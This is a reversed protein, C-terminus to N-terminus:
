QFPEEVERIGSMFLPLFHHYDLRAPEIKWSLKNRAGQQIIIPLDSREYSRRLETNPPNPRRTTSGASPPGASAARSARKARREEAARSVGISSTGGLGTRGRLYDKPEARATRTLQREGPALSATAPAAPHAGPLDRGRYETVDFPSLTEKHVRKGDLAPTPSSPPLPTADLADMGRHLVRRPRRASLVFRPWARIPLKAGNKVTRPTTSAM